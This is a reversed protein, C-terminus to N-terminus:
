IPETDTKINRVDVEIEVTQFDDLPENKIKPETKIQVDNELKIPGTKIKVALLDEVTKNKIKIPKLPVESALAKAISSLKIKKDKNKKRKKKKKKIPQIDQATPAKKMVNNKKNKKNRNKKKKNANKSHIDQTTHDDQRLRKEIEEVRKNCFSTHIIRLNKIPIYTAVEYDCENFADLNNFVTWKVEDLDTSQTKLFNTIFHPKGIIIHCTTPTPPGRRISEERLHLINCSPQFFKTLSRITKEIEECEESTRSKVVIIAQVKNLEFSISNIIPVVFMLIKEIDSLRHFPILCEKAQETVIDPNILDEVLTEYNMERIAKFLAPKLHLRNVTGNMESPKNDERVVNEASFM